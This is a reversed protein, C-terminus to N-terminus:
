EGEWDWSYEDLMRASVESQLYKWVETPLM